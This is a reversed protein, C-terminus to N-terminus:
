KNKFREIEKPAKPQYAIACSTTNAETKLSKTAMRAVVQALKKNLSKNKM